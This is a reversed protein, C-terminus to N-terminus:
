FVGMFVMTLLAMAANSFVHILIPTWVTDTKEYAWCAVLHVPLTVLFLTMEEDMSWLCFVMALHKVLLLATMVAYALWPRRECVPAFISAYLLCTTTVPVLFVVCLTGWLPQTSIVASSFFLLDAETTILSGFAVNVLPINRSFESLVFIALKLVTIVAACIGATALVEKTNVQVLLWSDKLYSFFFLLVVVFNCVHYGIELWIEYSQGRSGITSLSILAPMMLFALFWYPIGGALAHGGPTEMMRPFFKKM